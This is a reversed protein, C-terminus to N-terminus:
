KENTSVTNKEPLILRISHFQENADILARSIYCCCPLIIKLMMVVLLPNASNNYDHGNDHWGISDDSGNDVCDNNNDDNTGNYDNNTLPQFLHAIGSNNNNDNDFPIVVIIVMTM